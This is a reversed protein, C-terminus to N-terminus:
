RGSLAAAHLAARQVSTTRARGGRVPFVSVLSVAALLAIGM